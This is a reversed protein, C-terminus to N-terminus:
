SSREELRFREIERDLAEIEGLLEQVREGVAGASDTNEASQRRVGSILEVLRSSEARQRETSGLVERIRVLTSEAAQAISDGANKQERLAGRVSSSRERMSNVTSQMHQAGSRQQSTAAAIQAIQERVRDIATAVRHSGESQEATARAIEAAAGSAQRSRELIKGLRHGAGQSRTVGDEVRRLTEKMSDSLAGVEGQIGTLLDAIEAAGASARESLARIEAAVVAFGKGEEGSQAALIAANLALLHTEGAVEEIVSLIKGIERSREGLSSMRGAGARVADRVASMAQITEQVAETGGEADKAADESLTASTRATERVQRVSADIETMSTATEAAFASVSEVSGDIAAISQALEVAAASLDEVSAHLADMHQSVEELSAAMELISSGTEEASASLDEMRESIGRTDTDFKEISSSSEDVIVNQAEARQAVAESDRRIADAASRVQLQGQRIRGAIAALGQAMTNFSDALVGVENRQRTRIRLALNGSAMEEASKAIGILPQILVRAAVVILIIGALLVAVTLIGGGTWLTQRVALWDRANMVLRLRGAIATRRFSQLDAIAVGARRLTTDTASALASASDIGARDLIRAAAPTDAVPVVFLFRDSPPKGGDLWRPRAKPDSSALLKGQSDFFEVYDVSPNLLLSQAIDRLNDELRFDVYYGSGAAVTRALTAGERRLRELFAKRAILNFFVLFAAASLVLLATVGTVFQTVLSAKRRDRATKKM